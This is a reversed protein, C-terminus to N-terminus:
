LWAVQGAIWILTAQVLSFVAVYFGFAAPLPVMPANDVEQKTLMLQTALPDNKDRLAMLLLEALRDRWYYKWEIQWHVYLAANVVSSLVGLAALAGLVYGAVAHGSDLLNLAIALYLLGGMLIIIAKAMDNRRVPTSTIREIKATRHDLWELLPFAAPLLPMVLLGVLLESSLLTHWPRHYESMPTIEGDNILTTSSEWFNARLTDDDYPGEHDVVAALTPVDPHKGIVLKSVAAMQLDSIRNAEGERLSVGMSFVTLVVCTIALQLVLLLDLQYGLVDM